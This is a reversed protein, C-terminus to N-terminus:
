SKIEPIFSKVIGWVGKAPKRARKNRETAKDVIDSQSTDAVPKDGPQYSRPPRYNRPQIYSKDTDNDNPPKKKKKIRKHKAGKNVPAPQKQSPSNQSPSSKSPKKSKATGRKQLQSSQTKKDTRKKIKADPFKKEQLQNGVAKKIAGYYKKDQPQVLTIATGTQDYRGTRGIRHIYDDPHRPVDYNLILSIDDIDIGRSLVDTAVM